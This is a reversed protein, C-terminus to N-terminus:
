SFSQRCVDISGAIREQEAAQPKVSKVKMVKKKGDAKGVGDGDAKLDIGVQISFFFPHFAV